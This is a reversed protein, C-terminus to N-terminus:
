TCAQDSHDTEAGKSWQFALNRPVLYNRGYGDKVLSTVPHESAM